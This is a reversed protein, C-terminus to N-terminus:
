WRSFPNRSLPKVNPNHGALINSTNSPHNDMSATICQPNGVPTTYGGAAELAAYQDQSYSTCRKQWIGSIQEWVIYEQM